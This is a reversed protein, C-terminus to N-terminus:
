TVEYGASAGRANSIRQATDRDIRGFCGSVDAGILLETQRTSLNLKTLSWALDRAELALVFDAEALAQQKIATQDAWHTSPFSCRSGLDVVSPAILEALELLPDFAGPGPRDVIVVPSNSDTLM